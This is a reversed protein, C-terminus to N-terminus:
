DSSDGVAEDSGDTGKTAILWLREAGLAFPELEDDLAEFSSFGAEFLLDTLERLPYVRVSSRQEGRDGGRLFSWTTEVRGTGAAYAAEQLVVTGDVEFWHREHFRPLLTELCQTDILYRGGPELARAASRAQALDGDRDFYGFSGWYCVVADFGGDFALDRMDGMEYRVGDARERAAVLFRETRDVGVVSYGRAALKSSIRGTGCPADLVRMGPRLRLAREVRDVVLDADEVSGWGLQVSQWFPSGFM